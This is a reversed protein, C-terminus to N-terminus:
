PDLQQRQFMGGMHLTHSGKIWTLDDKETFKNQLYRFPTVISAGLSTANPVNVDVDERAPAFIQLAQHEAPQNESTWPRSYSTTFQNVVSASFIHREGITLFQNHTTDYLPWLGLNENTTRTGFDLEYRGFLSDKASINYDIRGVFFNEPPGTWFM